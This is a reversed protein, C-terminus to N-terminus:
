LNLKKTIDGIIPAEWREGSLAKFFAIVNFVFAVAAFFWGIVPFWFLVWGICWIIAFTVGQKAHFQVYPSDKKLLLPVIVLLGLYSIAAILKNAEVDPDTPPKSGEAAGEHVTEWAKANEESQQGKMEETMSNLIIFFTFLLHLIDISLIDRMVCFRM